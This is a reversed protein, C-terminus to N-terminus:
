KLSAYAIRERAELVLGRKLREIAEEPIKGKGCGRLIVPLRRNVHEEIRPDDLSSRTRVLEDHADIASALSIELDTDKENM